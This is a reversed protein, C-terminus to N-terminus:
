RRFLGFRKPTQDGTGLRYAKHLEFKSGCGKCQVYAYDRKLGVWFGQICKCKPCAKFCNLAEEIEQLNVREGTEM